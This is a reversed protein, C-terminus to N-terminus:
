RIGSDVVLRVRITAASAVDVIKQANTALGRANTARIVYRGAHVSLQFWGGAGTRTSAVIHRAGRGDAAVVSGGVVPQPPCPHDARPVPCSPASLVRGVVTGDAHTATGASSCASVALVLVLLVRM